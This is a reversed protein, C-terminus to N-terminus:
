KLNAQIQFSHRNDRIFEGNQYTREVFTLYNNHDVFIVTSCRTGYDPTQIFSSSLARELKLGVGTNPLLSDNTQEENKLIAFLDNAGIVDRRYVYEKLAQKSQIVKPWPTNLMHNSLGHTGTPISKIEQEINNYHLLGNVDGVLLNFGEYADKKKHLAILYDEASVASTLYNKVIEGRTTKNHSLSSAMELNRFNTLAAFRGDTTVGLWTGMGVLDRGALLSPEDAWFMAPSTPRDYFEDRNAMLIFKYTPHDQLHFTILCM